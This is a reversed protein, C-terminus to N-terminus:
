LLCNRSELSSLAFMTSKTSNRVVRIVRCQGIRPDDSEFQQQSPQPREKQQLDAQLVERHCHNEIKKIHEQVRFREAEKVVAHSLGPVRFDNDLKEVKTSEHGCEPRETRTQDEEIKTPTLM